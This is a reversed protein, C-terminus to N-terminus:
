AAQVKLYPFRESLTKEIRKNHRMKDLRPPADSRELEGIGPGLSLFVILRSLESALNYELAGIVRHKNRNVASNEDSARPNECYSTM